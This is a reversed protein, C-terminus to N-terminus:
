HQCASTTSQQSQYLVIVSCSSYFLSVALVTAAILVFQM